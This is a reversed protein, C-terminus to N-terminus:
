STYIMTLRWTFRVGLQIDIAVTASAPKHPFFLTFVSMQVGHM